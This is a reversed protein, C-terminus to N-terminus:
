APDADAGSRHSTASKWAQLLEKWAPAFKLAEDYKTLADTHRGDRILTDGWAKLPDAWHSAKGNAAALDAAARQLDGRHLASLGRDLYIWPADPALSLGQAWVREAGELDGAHELVDGRYAFCRSWPRMRDFLAEAEAV